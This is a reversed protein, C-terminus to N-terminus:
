PSTRTRAANGEKQTFYDRIREALAHSITPVASLEEVSANKLREFSSFHKLLLHRRKIGIGPIKELESTLGIETRKKRNFTNAFRHAEDRLQIILQLMPDNRPLLVREKKGPVVIEEEKKAIGLYPVNIQLASLVNTAASIQPEGGDLVLLDPLSLNERKKRSLHRTLVQKMSGFDNPRDFGRVIFKRYNKKNPIGNHFSVVSAVTATGQLTSIDICEIDVIDHSVGLIQSLGTQASSYNPAFEHGDAQGKYHRALSETAAEEAIRTWKHDGARSFVQLKVQGGTRNKLWDFVLEEEDFAHPLLVFPPFEDEDQYIQKLADLLLEGQDEKASDAIFYEQTDVIEEHAIRLRLVIGSEQKSAIGIADFHYEKIELTPKSIQQVIKIRDRIRSASEFNEEESVKKMEKEWETLLSLSGGKLFRILNE